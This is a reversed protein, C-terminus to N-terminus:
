TGLGAGTHRLQTAGIARYHSLLRRKSAGLALKQHFDALRAIM